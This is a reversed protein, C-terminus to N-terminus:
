TELDAIGERPCYIVRTVKRRKEFIRFAVTDLGHVMVSIGVTASPTHCGGSLKVHENDIVLFVNL